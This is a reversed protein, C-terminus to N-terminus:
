KRLKDLPVWDGPAREYTWFTWGNCSSRQCAAALSQSLHTEGAFRITGDKTVRATITKNKCWVKLKSFSRGLCQIMAELIEYPLQSM